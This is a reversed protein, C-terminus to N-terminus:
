ILRMLVTQRSGVKNRAQEITGWIKFHGYQIQMLQSPFLLDFLDEKALIAPYIVGVFQWSSLDVGAEEKVERQITRKISGLYGEQGSVLDELRMGGGPLEWRGSLDQGTISATEKRRRLLIKIKDKTL